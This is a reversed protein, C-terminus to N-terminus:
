PVSNLVGVRGLVPTESTVTTTLTARWQQYRGAIPLASAAQWVPAADSALFVTDSARVEFTISTGAPLTEVWGLSTWVVGGVGSDFVKSAITGSLLYVTTEEYTVTWDQISPLDTSYTTSLNARLRIQDYATLVSSIDVPSTDSGATNGPLDADPILQWSGGSYYEVQYNISSNAPETDNWSLQIGVAFRTAADTPITVSRLIGSASVAQGVEVYNKFYLDGSANTWSTGADTSTAENGDSYSDVSQYAVNYYNSADGGTTYAVISYRTGNSITYPTGFIFAYEAATSGIDSRTATAYVTDGPEYDGTPTTVYTMFYVDAANYSTWSSGGDNSSAGKGLTYPDGPDEYFVNYCNAADGGSAYIVIAYSTGATISYPTAFVFDYDQEITIDSRSASAYVTSGPTDGVLISMWTRFYLDATNVGTWSSGGDNSYCERGAAYVDTAEYSIDYYNAADGGTTSVVIAYKTGATVSYATGFTFDYEAAVTVDSRSATAYVTSGPLYATATVYTRFHIDDAQGTWSSGADTSTCRRGDAYVDTNQYRLQYCNRNSGDLTSVVISYKVGATVSAPSTFVFEYEAYATGVDAPNLSTSAYVTDGPLDGATCDRIEVTIPNPPDGNRRLQLTVKALDGTEGALFTQAFYRGDNVNWRRNDQIQTQDENEESVLSVDRLEVTVGNPPSGTESLRLTVTGLDGSMGPEFIQAVWNTDYTQLVNSFSTQSQDESVQTSTTVDRLEVTIASPASGTESLRLTVTGLDDSLGALFTQAAWSNGYTQFSASFSTQSQDLVDAYTQEANRLEVTLANPPAGVAATNLLVMVLDGTVGAVFSQGVWNDGYIQRDGSTTTQSQDLVSATTVYTVFYLDEATGTWVTGGDTTNYRAGRPYV